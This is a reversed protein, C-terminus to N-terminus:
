SLYGLGRLRELVQSDVEFGTSGTERALRECEASWDKLLRTLRLTEQPHEAAVNHGEKSRRFLLDSGSSRELWGFLSKSIQQGKAPAKHPYVLRILKWNEDQVSLYRTAYSGTRSDSFLYRSKQTMSEDYMLPTLSVGQFSGSTWREPQHGTLDYCTPTIDIIGVEQCVRTGAQEQQPLKMILPVRLVEEYPLIDVHGLWGHPNLLRFRRVLKGFGPVKQAAALWHATSAHSLRGYENFVEGHDSMVVILTEDYLGNAKLHSIIEGFTQDNSFILSDYLDFMRLTAAESTAERLSQISGSLQGPQTHRAFRGGDPPLLFPVHTDISWVLAFFPGVVQSLWEVTLQALKDSRPLRSEEPLADAHSTFTRRDSLASAKYLEVFHDIGADFGSSPSIQEITSLIATQYGAQSLVQPLRPVERCLGTFMNQAGHVSPYL